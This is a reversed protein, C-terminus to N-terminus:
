RAAVSTAGGTPDSPRIAPRIPAPKPAPKAIQTSKMANVFSEVQAEPVNLSVNITTGTATVKLNQLVAAMSAMQAGGPGAAAGPQAGSMAAISALAQLVDALSKAKVADNTIAQGTIQVNTGFKIGGSTSQVSSFMASFQSIPSAPAGPTAPGTLSALLSSIPNVSAVWADNAASLAQVQALLAPNIANTGATSRDIAGKVSATDGVIAIGTGLFAISDSTTRPDTSSVLTAGGYTQISVHGEKGAVTSTIQPVNFTGLAMILAAQPTTDKGLTILPTAALIETVDRRPDFGSADIFAQMQPDNSSAIQALIYQGFPSSQASTVNLGAISAAGPMVLNLLRSDAASATATFFLATLTFGALAFHTRM